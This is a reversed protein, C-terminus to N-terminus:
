AVVVTEKIFGRARTALINSLISLSQDDTADQEELGRGNDGQIDSGVHIGLFHQEPRSLVDLM